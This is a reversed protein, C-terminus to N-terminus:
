RELKKRVSIVFVGMLGLSLLAITAPEPVITLETSGPVTKCFTSYNGSKASFVQEWFGGEDWTNINSLATNNVEVDTLSFSLMQNIGLATGASAVSWKGIGVDFFSSSWNAPNLGTISSNDIDTFVDKEFYLDLGNMTIGKKFVSDVHFSYNVLGFTTTAGNDVLTGANPNVYGSMVGWPVANANKTGIVFLSAVVILTSILFKKM